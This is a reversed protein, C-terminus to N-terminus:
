TESEGEQQKFSVCGAFIHENWMLNEVFYKGQDTHKKKAYKSYVGFIIITTLNVIFLFVAIV